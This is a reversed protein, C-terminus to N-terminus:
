VRCQHMGDGLVSLSLYWWSLSGHSWAVVAGVLAPVITATFFPARTIRVLLKLDQM